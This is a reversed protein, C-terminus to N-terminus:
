AKKFLEFENKHFKLIGEDRMRGLEASLGSRDVSLYDALEQRNFPIFFRSGGSARACSSLYSLLKERTTRKSMFEIKRALSINKAAIINLMNQIMQKHFSCANPCPSSLKSYEIFVFESDKTSAVNVPLAGEGSCAFAEAFLHGPGINDFVSRNGYYDDQYVQVEGLLVIGFIGAKEGIRLIVQNKKVKIPRVSLCNLLIALNSPEIDKFLEVSKLIEFYKEM